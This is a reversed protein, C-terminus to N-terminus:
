LGQFIQSQKVDKKEKCKSLSLRKIEFSFEQCFSYDEIMTKHLDDIRGMREDDKMELKVDTSIILVQDLTKNCNSILNDFTKEIYDLEDGHFLDDQHVLEFTNKCNKIIKIQLSIIEAIKVYNKVKPNIKQLSTFYDSHLNVEGRKLDGIFNLGNNVVTYGRQAYGIYTQLAAIQLLLTKRQRAQAGVEQFCGTVFLLLLM